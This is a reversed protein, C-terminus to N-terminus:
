AVGAPRLAFATVLMWYIPFFMILTIVIALALRLGFLKGRKARRQARSRQLPTVEVPRPMTDIAM